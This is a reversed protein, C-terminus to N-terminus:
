SICQRSDIDESHLQCLESIRLGASYLTMLVVRERMTEAAEILEAIQAPSLVIPLSQKRRRYPIEEAPWDQKLVHRVFFRIASNAVNISSGSLKREQALYLLFERSQCPKIRELPRDCFVQFQKLFGQYSQITRPSLGRLQMEELCTQFLHSM